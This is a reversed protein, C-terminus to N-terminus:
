PRQPARPTPNAALSDRMLGRVLRSRMANEKQARSRSRALVYTENNDQSILQVQVEASIAQWEGELLRREHAKLQARPTGVLYSAGRRRLSELNEESVIGRDFVWV